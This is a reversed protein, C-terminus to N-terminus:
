LFYFSKSWKMWYPSSFSCPKVNLTVDWCWEFAQGLSGLHDLKFVRVHPTVCSISRPDGGRPRGPPRYGLDWAAVEEGTTRRGRATGPPTRRGLGCRRHHPRRPNASPAGRAAAHLYVAPHPTPQYTEFTDIIKSAGHKNKCWKGQTENCKM